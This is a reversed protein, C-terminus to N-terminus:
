PQAYADGAHRWDMLQRRGRRYLGNEALLKALKPALKRRKSIPQMAGGSELM